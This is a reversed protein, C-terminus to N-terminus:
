TAVYYCRIRVAPLSPGKLLGRSPSPAAARHTELLM